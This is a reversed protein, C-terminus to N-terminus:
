RDTRQRQNEEFVNGRNVRKAAKLRANARALAEAARWRDVTSDPHALRKKAREAAQQAQHANIEEPLEVTDALLLVKDPLVEVLGQGVAAFHWKGDAKFRLESPQLVTIMPERHPLIGFEGDIGGFHLREVQGSFLLRETSAIELLFTSEAM